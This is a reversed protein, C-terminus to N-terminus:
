HRDDSISKGNRNPTSNRNHAQLSRISRKMEEIIKNQDNILQELRNVHESTPLIYKKKNHTLTIFNGKVDVKTENPLEEEDENHYMLKYFDNM